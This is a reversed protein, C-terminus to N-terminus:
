KGGNSGVTRKHRVESGRVNDDYDIIFYSSWCYRDTLAAEGDLMM